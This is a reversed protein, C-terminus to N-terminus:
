TIASLAQLSSDMFAQAFATPQINFYCSPASTLVVFHTPQIFLKAM